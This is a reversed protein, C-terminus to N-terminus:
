TVEADVLTSYRMHLVRLHCRGALDLTDPWGRVQIVNFGSTVGGGHTERPNRLGSVVEELRKVEVRMINRTETLASIFLLLNPRDAEWKALVEAEQLPPSARLM